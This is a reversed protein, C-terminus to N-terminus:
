VAMLAKTGQCELEALALRDRLERNERQVKDALEAIDRQAQWARSVGEECNKVIRQLEEVVIPSINSAVQLSIHHALDAVSSFSAVNFWTDKGLHVCLYTSGGDGRHPGTTHSIQTHEVWVDDRIHVLM